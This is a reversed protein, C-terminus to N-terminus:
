QIKCESQSSNLLIQSFSLLKIQVQGTSIDEEAEDDECNNDCDDNVDCAFTVRKFPTGKRELISRRKEGQGESENELDTMTMLPADDDLDSGLDDDDIIIEEEISDRSKNDMTERNTLESVIVHCIILQEQNGSENIILIM